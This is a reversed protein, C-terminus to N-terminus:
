SKGRFPSEIEEVSSENQIIELEELPILRGGNVGNGCRADPSVGQNSLLSSGKADKILFIDIM